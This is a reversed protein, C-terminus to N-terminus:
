VRRRRWRWALAQRANNCFYMEQNLVTKSRHRDLRDVGNASQDGHLERRLPILLALRAWCRRLFVHDPVKVPLAHQIEELREIAAIDFAGQGAQGL